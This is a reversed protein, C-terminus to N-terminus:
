HVDSDALLQVMFRPVHCVQSIRWVDGHMAHLPILLAAGAEWAEREHKARFWPDMDLSAFGGVHGSIAHGIEHAYILREKHDNLGNDLVVRARNRPTVYPDPPSIVMGDVGLIRRIPEYRVPFLDELPALKVPITNHLGYTDILSIIRDAIDKRM